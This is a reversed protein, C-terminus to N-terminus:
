VDDIKMRLTRTAGDECSKDEAIMKLETGGFYFSVEIPRDIGFMALMLNFEVPVDVEGIKKTEEDDIYSVDELDSEYIKICIQRQGAFVPSVIKVIAKDVNIESNKKVFLSFVDKCRETDGMTIKKEEKHEAADFLPTVEYGYSKRAIRSRVYEPNQGFMVAGRLVAAAPDDPVIVKARDGFKTRIAKTLYPSTSFGGVLFIYELKHLEPKRLLEELYITIAQITEEFLEDVVESSLAFTSEETITVGAIGSAEAAEIINISYMRQYKSAMSWSVSFVNLKVGSNPKAERKCKEFSNEINLWTGPLDRKLADIFDKKIVKSLIKHFAADVNTGGQPGGTAKTIEKVKSKSLVEHVTIDVTGGVFYISYLNM